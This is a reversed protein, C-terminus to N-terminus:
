RRRSSGGTLSGMIGRVLANTIQRGLSSGAARVVSKVMAEGVGQRNSARPAARERPEARSMPVSTAKPPPAEAALAEARAALMEFASERNVAQDYVGKLPSNGMLTARSPADLAGIQSDPPRVGTKAVM